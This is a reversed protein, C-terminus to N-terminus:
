GAKRRQQSRENKFTVDELSTIMRLDIRVTADDDDTIFISRGGPTIYAYDPHLLDFSRGDAVNIRFPQFPLDTLRLRLAKSDM